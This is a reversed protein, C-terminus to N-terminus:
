GGGEVQILVSTDNFHRMFFYSHFEVLYENFVLDVQILPSNSVLVTGRFTRLIRIYQISYEKQIYMIILCIKVFETVYAYECLVM